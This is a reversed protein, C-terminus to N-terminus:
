QAAKALELGKALQDPCSTSKMGCRIGSLRRIAEDVSMGVILRSIGQTNGSCGGEFRVSQIIDKDLEIVIRRSCVGRPTFEFHMIPIGETCNYDIYNYRISNVKVLTFASKNSM